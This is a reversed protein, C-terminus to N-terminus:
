DFFIKLEITAEHGDYNDNRFYKDDHYFWRQRLYLGINNGLDIDLGLGVGQGRQRRPKYSSSPNSSELTNVDGKTTLDGGYIRELGYYLCMTLKPMVQYYAEFENYFARVYASNDFVAIPSFKNQVSNFSGLYYVHLSKGLLETRYKAQLDMNNFYKINAAEGNALTDSITEQEYYGRFLSSVNNYAGFTPPMWSFNYYRSFALGNIRHSFSVKKGSRQLESAFSNGLAIKLDGVKFETNLELGQRNNAYQGMDLMPSASPFLSGGANGKYGQNLEQITTNIFSSNINAVTAGIHYVSLEIPILTYAAPTKVKFNIAPSIGKNYTPSNYQGIAFEGWFKVQNFELNYEFSHIQNKGTSRTNLSDILTYTNFTNLSIQGYKTNKILRAGYSINPNNVTRFSAAGGNNITKGYVTSFSWNKPLNFGELILGQFAQRGWRIDQLIQGDAYFKRYKGNGRKTPEWPNRDFVSFRGYPNQFVALTFPTMSHWIIGGSQLSFDGKNTKITAAVSAGLNLSISDGDVPTQGVGKYSTFVYLNTGFFVREHPNGSLNLLVTPERYNEGVSILRDPQGVTKIYPRNWYNHYGIFRYYGGIKFNAKSPLQLNPINFFSIFPRRTTDSDLNQAHSLISNLCVLCLLTQFLLKKINQILNRM